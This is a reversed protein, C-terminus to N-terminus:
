SNNIANSLVNDNGEKSIDSNRKEWLVEAESRRIYMPEINMVNGIKGSNLLDRGCLAVNVARPMRMNISAIKVSEPLSKIKHCVDGCIIVESQSSEAFSAAKNIAEDIGLIEIDTVPQLKQFIQVYARNKQADIMPMVTSYPFHYALAHLTPVGIIKVNWAYALAKAAALGIRLGTFSGPGISVAIADIMERNVNAMALVEKFQPLLTESHTLKSDQTIETFKDENCVAVSAARTATEIAAVYLNKLSM